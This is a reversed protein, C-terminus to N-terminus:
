NGNTIWDAILQLDQSAKSQPAYDMIPVRDAAALSLNADQRVLLLDVGPFNEKLQGELERDLSRRLDIQSQVIAWKKPGKRKRDRNETLDMVVRSAGLVALPHANTVVLAVDACTVALRELNENGPPCDVILVDFPLDTVLDTLDEPHLKQISHSLLELGGPLVALNESIPTPATKKRLLFSASGQATPDAGLVYAANSQPDLDIVLVKLGCNALVSAIGCSVCTKGVGGKRAPVAIKYQIMENQYKSVIKSSCLV